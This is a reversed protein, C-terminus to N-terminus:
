LELPRYHHGNIWQHKASYSDAMIGVGQAIATTAQHMREDRAAIYRRYNQESVREQNRDWQIFMWLGGFFYLPALLVIWLVLFEPDNFPYM